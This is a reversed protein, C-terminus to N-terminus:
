TRCRRSRSTACSGCSTRARISRPAWGASRPRPTAPPEERHLACLLYVLESQTFPAKLRSALRDRLYGAYWMPWDPDPGDADIYAQHHAEGAEKLLNEINKRKTADAVLDGKEIYNWSTIEVIIKGM